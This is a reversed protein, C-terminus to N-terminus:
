RLICFAKILAFEPMSQSAFLTRQGAPCVLRSQPVIGPYVRFASDECVTEKLLIGIRDVESGTYVLHLLLAEEAGQYVFSDPVELFGYVDPFVLM